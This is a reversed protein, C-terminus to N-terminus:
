DIHELLGIHQLCNLITVVVARDTNYTQVSKNQLLVRALLQDNLTKVGNDGLIQNQYLSINKYIHKLKGNTLGELIYERAYEIPTQKKIRPM